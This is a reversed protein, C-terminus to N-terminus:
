NAPGLGDRGKHCSNGTVCCGETGEKSRMRRVDQDEEQDIMKEKRLAPKM